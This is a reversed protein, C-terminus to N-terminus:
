IEIILSIALDRYCLLHKFDMSDNTKTACRAPCAVYTLLNSEFEFTNREFNNQLIVPAISVRLSTRETPM